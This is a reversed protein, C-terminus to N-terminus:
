PILSPVNPYFQKKLRGLWYGEVFFAVICVVAIIPWKFYPHLESTYVKYCIVLGMEIPFLIITALFLLIVCAVLAYPNLSRIWVIIQPPM